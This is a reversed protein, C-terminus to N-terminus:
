KRHNKGYLYPSKGAMLRQNGLPPEDFCAGGLVHIKVHEPVKHSPTAIIGDLHPVVGPKMGCKRLKNTLWASSPIVDNKIENQGGCHFSGASCRAHSKKLVRFLGFTQAPRFLGKLAPGLGDRPQVCCVHICFAGLSDAKSFHLSWEDRSLFAM